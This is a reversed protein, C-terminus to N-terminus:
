DSLQQDLEELREEIRNVRSYLLVGGVLLVIPIAFGVLGILCVFFLEVIGLGPM